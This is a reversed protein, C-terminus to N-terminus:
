PKAEKFGPPVMQAGRSLITDTRAYMQVDIVSNTNSYGQCEKKNTNRHRKGFLNGFATAIVCKKNLLVEM